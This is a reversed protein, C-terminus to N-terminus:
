ARLPLINYLIENRIADIDMQNLANIVFYLTESGLDKINDEGIIEILRLIAMGTEDDNILIQIDTPM